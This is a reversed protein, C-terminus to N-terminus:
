NQENKPEKTKDNIKAICKNALRELFNVEEVINGNNFGPDKTDQFLRLRSAVCSYLKELENITFANM